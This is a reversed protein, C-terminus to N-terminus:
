ISLERAIVSALDAAARDAECRSQQILDGISRVDGHRQEILFNADRVSEAKAVHLLKFQHEAVQSDHHWAPMTHAGIGAAALQKAATAEAAALTAALEELEDRLAIELEGLIAVRERWCDRVSAIVTARRSRLRAARETLKGPELSLLEPAAKFDELLEAAAAIVEDVRQNFVRLSAATHNDSLGFDPIPLQAISQLSEM